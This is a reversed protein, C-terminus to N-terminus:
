ISKVHLDHALKEAVRKYADGDPHMGDFTTKWSLLASYDIVKLQARQFLQRLEPAMPYAPFIVVYFNDNGFQNRYLQESKKVITVFQEYQETSYRRPFNINFLNVINSKYM